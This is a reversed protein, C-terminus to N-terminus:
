LLGVQRYMGQLEPASSITFPHWENSAIAPIKVFVYDGPDANFNVPKRVVLHTVRSPLLVASSIFSRGKGTWRFRLKRTGEILIFLAGPGVFWKWFNPGHIILLGWFPIYLLHTWYFVQCCIPGNIYNIKYAMYIIFKIFKMSRFIWKQSCVSSLLYGYYDSYCCTGMRNCKRLGSHAWVHRAKNYIAM